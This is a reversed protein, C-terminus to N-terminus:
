RHKTRYKNSCAKSCCVQSTCTPHFNTECLPCQQVPRRKETATSNCKKSCYKQRFTKRIFTTSCIECVSPEPDRPILSEICDHHTQHCKKCLTELNSETNNSRDEDIHHVVLYKTSSCRECAMKKQQRYTQIGTKWSPNQPGTNKGSREASQVAALCARSCCRSTGIQSKTIRYEKSCSDCPRTIESRPKVITGAAHCAKSCYKAKNKRSPKVHFERGCKICLIKEM